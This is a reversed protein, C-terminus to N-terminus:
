DGIIVLEGDGYIELLADGEITIASNVVQSYGDRIKTDRTITKPFGIREFTNIFQRVDLDWVDGTVTTQANSLRYLKSPISDYPLADLCQQIDSDDLDIFLSKATSARLIPTHYDVDDPEGARLALVVYRQEDEGPVYSELDAHTTSDSGYWRNIKNYADIYFLGRLNAKFGDTSATALPDSRFNQINRLLLFNRQPLNPNIVRPDVGKNVLDDFVPGKVIKAGDFDTGIWVQYGERPVYNTYGARVPFAPQYTANGNLDRSGAYRAWIYGDACGEAVRGTGDGLEAIRAGTRRLVRRRQLEETYAPM